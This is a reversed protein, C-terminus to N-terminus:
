LELKKTPIHTDTNVSTTASCGASSFCGTNTLIQFLFFASFAGLLGDKLIIAQVAVFLGMFGGLTRRLNWGTLLSEKLKEM